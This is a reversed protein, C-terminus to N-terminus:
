SVAVAERGPQAALLERARKVFDAQATLRVRDWEAAMRERVPAHSVAPTLRALADLARAEYLGLLDAATNLDDSLALLRRRLQAGQPDEHLDVALWERHIREGADTARYHIKPQRVTGATHSVEILGASELTAIAVYTSSSALRGRHSIEYAYSPRQIVLSLVAVVTDSPRALTSEPEHVSM